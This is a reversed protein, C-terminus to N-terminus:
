KQDDTIVGDIKLKHITNNESNIKKLRFFCSLNHEGEEILKKRSRIFAGEAKLRYICINDLKNQLEILEM